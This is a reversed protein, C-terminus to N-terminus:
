RKRFKRRFGALSILGSGLLLMTTPEPIPAIVDDTSINEADVIINDICMHVEGYKYFTVKDVHQYNFHYNTPEGEESVPEHVSITMSYKISGNEWGEVTLDDYQHYPYVDSIFASYFDFYGNDLRYISATNQYTFISTSGITGHWYGPEYNFYKTVANMLDWGYGSYGAPIEFATEYGPYLDEFTIVEAEIPGVIVFVLLVACLIVMSKKM